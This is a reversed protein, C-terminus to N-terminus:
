RGTAAYRASAQRARREAERKIGGLAIRRIISIGPSFCAWYRRMRASTVDDTAVVRTESSAQSRADGVREARLTVAIKVWGPEQFGAFQEAPIARFVVNAEWPRTVTGAVIETGPAEALVSWGSGKLMALLTPPTADAPDPAAGLVLERTKVIAHILPSRLLQLDCTTSWTIEAPAHVAISHLELAEFDPMFPNLLPDAHRRASGTVRGWRLWRSAAWIVYSAVGAAAVAAVSAVATPRSRKKQSHM